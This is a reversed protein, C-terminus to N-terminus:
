KQQSTHLHLKQKKHKHATPYIIIINKDTNNNTHTNFIQEKNHTVIHLYKPSQTQTLIKTNQLM